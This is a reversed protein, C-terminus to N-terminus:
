RKGRAFVVILWAVLTAGAAVAAIGAMPSDVVVSTAALGVLICNVAFVRAVIELTAFGGAGARQYFHTRHAQWIREGALLRRLLTLSADAVFYLPLLVAAALHGSGAVLCLLWVLLLGIPLSGMDGLFLRAVPRNFPAFGFMAGNLALAVVLAEPPLAGLAGIIAIGATLPVIEAVMMWDIGDMFNVLNVLWLGAGVLLTRELWDPLLPVIRMDAPLAALVLLIGITQAILKPVVGLDRMDDAMGVTALLLTAVVVLLMHVHIDASLQPTTWLAATSVGLAAVVVAIGGGQPTPSAHSSRANPLALAYRQFQPMLLAILLLSVILSAVLVVPGAWGIAQWANGAETM